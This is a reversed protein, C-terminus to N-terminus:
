ISAVPEQTKGTEVGYNKYVVQYQLSALLVVLLVARFLNM